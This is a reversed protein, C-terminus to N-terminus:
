KLDHLIVPFSRGSRCTQLSSCTSFKEPCCLKDPWARKKRSRSNPQIADKWLVHFCKKWCHPARGSSKTSTTKSSVPSRITSATRCPSPLEVTVERAAIVAAFTNLFNQRLSRTRRKRLLRLPLNDATIMRAASSFRKG